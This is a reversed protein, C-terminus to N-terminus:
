SNKVKVMVDKNNDHATVNIGILTIFGQIIGIAGAIILLAKTLKNFESM